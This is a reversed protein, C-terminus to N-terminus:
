FRSLLADLVASLGLSLWWLWFTTRGQNICTARKWLYVPTLLVWLFSVNRGLRNLTPRIMERDLGVLILYIIAGIFASVRPIDGPPTGPIRRLEHEFLTQIPPVILMGYVFVNRIPRELGPPRAGHREPASDPTTDASSLPRDTM